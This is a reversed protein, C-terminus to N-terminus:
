QTDFLHRIHAMVDKVTRKTAPWHSLPRSWYEWQEGFPSTHVGGNPHTGGGNTIPLLQPTVHPGSPPTLPFDQPVHFGFEIARDAFRGTPVVYAFTVRNDGLERVDFGLARLGNIFDQYAM